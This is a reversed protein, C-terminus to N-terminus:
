FLALFISIIICIYTFISRRQYTQMCAARRERRKDQLTTHIYTHTNTHTVYTLRYQLLVYM